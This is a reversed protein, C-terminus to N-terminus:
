AQRAAAVVGLGRLMNRRTVGTDGQSALQESEAMDQRENM